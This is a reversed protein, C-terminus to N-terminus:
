RRSGWGRRNPEPKPLRPAMVEEVIRLRKDLEGVEILHSGTTAM